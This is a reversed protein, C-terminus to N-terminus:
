LKGQLKFIRVPNDYLLMKAIEQARELDFAGENVKHELARSVNVRAMYQHGYVADIIAYDGGFASIKNAPVADLWEILANISATPSIIHAWCMDLMVNPFNKALASLVQQYPYGIHFLDFTVDPYELFLNTLLAPHSDRIFNGNGEQLGTHFQYTLGRTNALNLVVHQMYDQFAKNPVLGSAQWDPFMRSKLLRNFEKEAEYRTTRAYNLSRVYALGNKLAVVGRAIAKDLIIECASLWDDFSCISLGSEREIQRLQVSFDPYIIHLPLGQPQGPRGCPDDRCVSM